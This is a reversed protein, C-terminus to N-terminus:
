KNLGRANFFVNQPKPDAGKAYKHLGHGHRAGTLGVDVEQEVRRITREDSELYVTVRWPRRDCTVEGTTVRLSSPRLGYILNLAYQDWPRGILNPLVEISLSGWSIPKGVIEGNASLYKDAEETSSLIAADYDPTQDNTTDQFMWGAELKKEPAVVTDSRIPIRTGEFREPDSFMYVEGPEITGWKSFPRKALNSNLYRPIHTVEGRVWDPTEFGEDESSLELEAVVLGENEGEFVDVEWTHKAHPILYRTKYIITKPDCLSEIMRAADEVPIPYEWEERSISGEKPCSKVTIFGDVHYTRVRVVPDTSLYGQSIIVRPYASTPLSRVFGGDVLFKREIEM